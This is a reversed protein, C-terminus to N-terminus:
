SSRDRFKISFDRSNIQLRLKDGRWLTQSFEVPTENYSYSITTMLLLPTNIPVQMLETEQKTALVPEVWESGFSPLVNYVEILTKIISDDVLENNSFGPVLKDPIWSKNIALPINNGLRLRETYIVLDKSNLNLLKRGTAPIQKTVERNILQSSPKYGEKILMSSLSPPFVLKANIIDSEKTVFTGVGRKKEIIGDEVMKNLAQRLTMRSVGFQTALETEPPLKSGPRLIGSHILDQLKKRIQVYLPIPSNTNLITVISAIIM